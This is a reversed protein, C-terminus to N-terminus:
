NGLPCLIAAEAGAMVDENLALLVFPPPCDDNNQTPPKSPIGCFIEVKIECTLFKVEDGM